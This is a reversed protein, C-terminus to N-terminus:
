LESEISFPNRYDSFRKRESELDLGAGKLPSEHKRHQECPHAVLFTQMRSMTENSLEIEFHAYIRALSNRRAAMLQGFHLDFFQRQDFAQDLRVDLTSKLGVASVLVALVM